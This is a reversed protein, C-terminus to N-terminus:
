IVKILSGPDKLCIRQWEYFLLRGGTNDLFKFSHIIAPPLKVAVMINSIQESKLINASVLVPGEYPPDPCAQHFLWFRFHFRGYYFGQHFKVRGESRRNKEKHNSELEVEYVVVHHDREGSEHCVAGPQQHIYEPGSWGDVAVSKGGIFVTNVNDIAAISDVGRSDQNRANDSVGSRKTMFKVADRETKGRYKQYVKNPHYAKEIHSQMEGIYKLLYMYIDPLRDDDDPGDDDPVEPRFFDFFFSGSIQAKKILKM